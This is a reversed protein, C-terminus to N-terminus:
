GEDTEDGPYEAEARAAEELEDPVDDDAKVQVIAELLERESLPIALREDLEEGTPRHRKPQTIVGVM